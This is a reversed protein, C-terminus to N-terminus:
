WDCISVSSYIHREKKIIVIRNRGGCCRAAHVHGVQESKQKKVIKIKKPSYRGFLTLMKCSHINILVSTMIVLYNNNCAFYVILFSNCM